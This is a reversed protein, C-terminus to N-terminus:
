KETRKDVVYLQRGLHRGMRVRSGECWKKQTERASEM